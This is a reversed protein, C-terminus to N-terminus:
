QVTAKKKILKGNEDNMQKELFYITKNEKFIRNQLEKQSLNECGTPVLFPQVIKMWNGNIFSYTTMTYTCGNMPAQYISIEDSGDNNLDGENILIIECCGAKIPKLKSDSFRIEFEAPTGNEVPNGKAEKTKIVTATIKKGNGLFNGQIKEGIKHEAKSNQGFTLISFILFTILNKM